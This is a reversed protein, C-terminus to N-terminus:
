GAVAIVKLNGKNLRRILLSLQGKFLLLCKSVKIILSSLKIMHYGYISRTTAGQYWM